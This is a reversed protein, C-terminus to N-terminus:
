THDLVQAGDGEGNPRHWFDHREVCLESEGQDSTTRVRLETGELGTFGKDIEGECGRIGGRPPAARYKTDVIDIREILGDKSLAEGRGGWWLIAGPPLPIKMEGIGIAMLQTECLEEWDLSSVGCRSWPINSLMGRLKLPIRANVFSVASLKSSPAGCLHRARTPCADSGRHCPEHPLPHYPCASDVSLACAWRQM